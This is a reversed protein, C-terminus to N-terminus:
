RKQFIKFIKIPLNTFQMHVRRKSVSYEEFSLNHIELQQLFQLITDANRITAAIIAYTNNFSLFIKLGSVLASFSDVDYLIDSGIIINPIIWDENIYKDINEWKLEMIKVNTCNYKVELKLRDARTQSKIIEENHLLNLKVNESLMQLVTEHCDTFIYQKPFCKKIICLGTLGVGCGLELIVKDCFENKSELCWNSLEIAGQWSCLGTTGESIINTSELMTICDTNENDIIFHRYHNSEDFSSSVLNCYTIYISEHIIGDKKEIMTMLWKLFARQYSKKIPYKKILESNLTKELIEQQREFETVWDINHESILVNMTNIPTCSLFYKVLSNIDLSKYDM